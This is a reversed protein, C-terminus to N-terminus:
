YYARIALPTIRIETNMLAKTAFCQILLRVLDLLALAAVVLRCIKRRLTRPRVRRRQAIRWMCKRSYIISSDFIFLDEFFDEVFLTRRV